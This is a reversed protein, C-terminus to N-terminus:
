IWSTPSHVIQASRERNKECRRSWPRVPRWAPTAHRLQDAPQADLAYALVQLPDARLDGVGAACGAVDLDERRHLVHREFLESHERLGPDGQETLVPGLIKHGLRLRIGIAERPVEDARELAALDALEDGVDAVDLRHRAVGRQGLQTPVGG